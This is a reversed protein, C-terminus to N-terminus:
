SPQAGTAMGKGVWNEAAWSGLEESSSGWCATRDMSGIWEERRGDSDEIQQESHLAKWAPPQANVKSSSDTFWAAHPKMSLQKYPVTWTATPELLHNWLQDQPPSLGRGPTNLPHRSADGWPCAGTSVM